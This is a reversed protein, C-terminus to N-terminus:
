FRLDIACGILNNSKQENFTVYNLILPRIRCAHLIFGKDLILLDSM